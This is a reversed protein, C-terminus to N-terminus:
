HTLNEKYLNWEHIGAELRAAEFGEAKLYEVAETAYVCYPGRCYAIVKKNKPLDRIYDNLEEMPISIAGDLHGNLYEAKPRVDILVHSEEEKCEAWDELELTELEDGRMIFDKRLLNVDAIQEEAISKISFLLDTVKPNALQYIVFNKNKKYIVLRAELLAQLHKSTNAMSMKTEKSLVEVSKPSQSLLDLLELRKPSSLVKGIRAFENYITDKFSRANM